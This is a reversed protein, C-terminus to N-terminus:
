RRWCRVSGRSCRGSRELLERRDLQRARQREAVLQAATEVQKVLKDGGFQSRVANLADIMRQMSPAVKNIQARVDDLSVALTDAGNQLRNLDRKNDSIVQSGQAM